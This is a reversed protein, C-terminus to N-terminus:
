SAIASALAKPRGVGPQVRARRVYEELDDESVRYAGGIFVSPLTGARVYRRATKESVGLRQAVESLKLSEVM